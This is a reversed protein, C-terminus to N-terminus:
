PRRDGADGERQPYRNARRRIWLLGIIQVVFGLTMVGFCGALFWERDNASNVFAWALVVVVAGLLWPVWPRLMLPKPNPQKVRNM